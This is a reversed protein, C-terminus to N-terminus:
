RPLHVERVHQLLASVFRDTGGDRGHVAQLEALQAADLEPLWLGAARRQLDPSGGVAPVEEPAIWAALAAPDDLEAIVWARLAPDHAVRGVAKLASAPLMRRAMTPYGQARRGAAHQLKDEFSMRGSYRDGELDVGIREGGPVDGVIASRPLIDGANAADAPVYLTMEQTM